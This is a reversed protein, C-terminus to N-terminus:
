ILSCHLQSHLHYCISMHIFHQLHTTLNLSSEVVSHPEDQHACQRMAKCDLSMKRVQFADPLIM